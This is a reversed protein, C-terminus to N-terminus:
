LWEHYPHARVALYPDAVLHNRVRPELPPESHEERRPLVLREEELRVVLHEIPVRHAHEIGRLACPRLRDPRHEPPLSCSSAHLTPTPLATRRWRAPPM